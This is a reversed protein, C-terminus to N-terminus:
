PYMPPVAGPPCRWQGGPNVYVCPTHVFNTVSVSPSPASAQDPSSQDVAGTTGVLLSIAVVSMRLM